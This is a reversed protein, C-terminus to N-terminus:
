SKYSSSRKAAQGFDEFSGVLTGVSDEKDMWSILFWVGMM